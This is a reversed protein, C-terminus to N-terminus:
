MLRIVLGMALTVMELDQSKEGKFDQTMQLYLLELNEQDYLDSKSNIDNINLKQSSDIQSQEFTKFTARKGEEAFDNPRSKPTDHIKAPNSLTLSKNQEVIEKPDFLVNLTKFSPISTKQPLGYTRYKGVMRGWNEESSELELDSQFLPFLNTLHLNEYFAKLLATPRAKQKLLSNQLAKQFRQCLNKNLSDDKIIQPQSQFLTCDTGKNM